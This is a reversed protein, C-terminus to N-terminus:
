LSRLFALLAERDATSLGEFRRRAASAEGGHWLVAETLTRARGDHLYGVKSAKGTGMVKETYGIGWLPATRWLAGTAQGQAFSDALDAGMDHLLLDTYPRITQDRLEAFLHGSGTKMQATHCAVCRMSEFLKSGLTVQEPNVRHEDIPTVGKPFGSAMSRQAPVAVLALYNSLSTLEAESVGPNRPGSSCATPGFNCDRSPYTPSTVAMDQLLATATQQRLTAKSAKWGFRGLRVVGSDPDFVYNAVGKVGDADPASRARAIIDAEPIAELLGMGIMPPAARLSHVAPTPGDFSLVPKRLEVVTGDALRVNRTEFRGVRVSNGWDQADGAANRANMQVASGYRPHPVQHGAEGIAATQLSMTDLRQNLMTPALSRGNNVHCAVCASQNFNTGQLKTAPTYPDNGPESHAGTTFDTHILRRGEVFRQMNQMGINNFPQQFMSAGNDSYNYSVSGTGGSLAAVPLPSSNLRPQVGYWPTLGSGIVYLWEASYYRNGGTDGKAALSEKSTFMAPSVEVADGVALPRSPVHTGNPLGDAGLGAHAPYEKVRLTCPGSIGDATSLSGNPPYPTPACSKVTRDVLEGPRMWGYGTSGPRDFARFFATDGPIFDVTTYRNVILTPKTVGAVRSNDIIEMGWTRNQFYQPVFTLHSGPGKDQPAGTADITDNPGFGVENWDEGRERGHRAMARAGFRTILTGDALRFQTAESPQAVSPLPTLGQGNAPYSWASTASTGQTNDTGPTKFDVEFLSYGYATARAVGQMRLYRASMGLNLLEETGGKGNTVYRIQTWSQGDQSVQLAYEKGYSRQWVLRMYGVDVKTGFDFQIWADDAFNSAWRSSINGDIAATAPLGASESGSATVAVPRITKGPSTPAAFTVLTTSKQRSTTEEAPNESTVREGSPESNGGGCAAM